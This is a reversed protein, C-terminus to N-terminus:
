KAQATSAIKKAFGKPDELLERLAKRISPALEHEIHRAAEYLIREALSFDIDGAKGHAVANRSGTLWYRHWDREIYLDQQKVINDRLDRADVEAGPGDKEILAKDASALVEVTAALLFTHTVYDAQSVASSFMEAAGLFRRSAEESQQRLLRIEDLLCKLEVAVRQPDFPLTVAGGHIDGSSGNPIGPGAISSERRCEPVRLDHIYNVHECCSQVEIIVHKPLALAPCSASSSWM